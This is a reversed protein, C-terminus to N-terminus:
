DQTHSELRALTESMFDLSIGFSPGSLGVGLVAPATAVAIVAAWRAANSGIM